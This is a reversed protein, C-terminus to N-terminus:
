YIVIIIPCSLFIPQQLPSEQEQTAHSPRNEEGRVNVKRRHIKKERFGLKWGNRTAQTVQIKKHVLSIAQERISKGELRSKEGTYRKNGTIWIKM